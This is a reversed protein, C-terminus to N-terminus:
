DGKHYKEARELNRRVREDDPDLELAWRYLAVCNEFDNFMYMEHGKKKALELSLPEIVENQILKLFDLRVLFRSGKIKHMIQGLSRKGDIYRLVRNKAEGSSGQGEAAECLRFITNPSGLHERFRASFSERELTRTLIDKVDCSYRTVPIEGTRFVEPPPGEVFSFRANAWAFLDVLDGLVKEGLAEGLDTETIVGQLLLIEGLLKKSKKQFDLAKRIHSGSAMRCTELVEGIRTGQDAGSSIILLEGEGVHILRESDKAKAQLTGVRPNRLLNQLIDDLKVGSVLDGEASETLGSVISRKLAEIRDRLGTENPEVALASKYFAIAQEMENFVKANEAEQVAEAATLPRLIEKQLFRSTTEYVDFAPMGSLALVDGFNRRGDVLDLVTQRAAPRGKGKPEPGGTRVLILDPSPLVKRFAEMREHKKLVTDLLTWTAVRLEMVPKDPDELLSPFFNAEFEINVETWGFLEFLLNMAIEASVADSEKASLVGQKELIEGLGVRMKGAYEEARALQKPTLLGKSLLAEGLAPAKREGESLILLEDPAIYFFRRSHADKATLAGSTRNRVISGLLTTLDFGKMVIKKPSASWGINGKIMELYQRLFENEQDFQMAAEYYKVCLEFNKKQFATEAEANLRDLDMQRVVGARLFDHLIRCTQFKGIKSKEIIDDINNKGDVLRLITRAKRNMDAPEEADAVPYYVAKTSQLDHQIRNWEEIRSVAKMLLRGPDLSMKTVGKTETFEEPFYNKTFTFHANEWLFIDFLEEKIKEGIADQIDQDGVIGEEVLIEGLLKGSEKQIELARGVDSEAIKGADILIDGLRSVTSKGKTILYIVGKSFYVMKENFGDSVVLTGSHKNLYLSQFLDALSFTQFDGELKYERTSEALDPMKSRILDVTKQFFAADGGKEMGFECYKLCADFKAAALTKEAQERTEELTLPRIEGRNMWSYLDEAVAIPSEKSLKLIDRV